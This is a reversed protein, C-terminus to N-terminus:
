TVGAPLGPASLGLTSSRPWRRAGGTQVDGYAGNKPSSSNRTSCVTAASVADREVPHPQELLLVLRAERELARVLHHRVEDRERRVLQSRRHRRDVAEDLRQVVEAVPQRARLPSSRVASSCCVTRMAESTSCSSSRDRRSASATSTRGCCSSRRSRSCSTTARRPRRAPRRPRARCAPGLHATTSGDIRSWM